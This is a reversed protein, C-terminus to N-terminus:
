GENNDTAKKNKATSVIDTSYKAGMSFSLDSIENINTSLASFARVMKLVRAPLMIENVTNLKEITITTNFEALALKDGRTTGPSM